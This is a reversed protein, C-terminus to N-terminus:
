HTHERPILGIVMSDCSGNKVPQVVPIGQKLGKSDFRVSLYLVELREVEDGHQLLFYPM